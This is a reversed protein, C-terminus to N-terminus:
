IGLLDAANGCLVARKQEDALPLSEALRLEHDQGHWPWDSGFLVRAPGHRRILDAARRPGLLDIAFSTELYLERGILVREVEDWCRYGGLHTCVVRLDRHRDAVHAIRRPRAADADPFALDAGCHFVVFLGEAAAASYIEEMRAEDAAFHQYQPHLKIGPLGAKAFKRVWRGPRRDDPHVSPLAELRDCRLAKSWQLINGVQGARTAISCVVAVDIDARDMSEILGPATGDGVAEAGSAAQLKGLARRALADPFAHTHFDIASV